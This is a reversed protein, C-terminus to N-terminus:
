GCYRLCQIIRKEARRRLKLVADSSIGLELAIENTKKDEQYYKMIVSRQRDTLEERLILPLVRLKQEFGTDYHISEMEATDGRM